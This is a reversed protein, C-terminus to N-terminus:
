RQWWGRGRSIMDAVNDGQTGALLHAPNVCRPNDCTHRVVRRGPSGFALAYAVRHAYVVRRGLRLVGYGDGNTGGRWHWCRDPDGPAARAAFREREARKTHLRTM